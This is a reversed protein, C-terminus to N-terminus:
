GVGFFYLIPFFIMQEMVGPCDVFSITMIGTVVKINQIGTELSVTRFQKHGFTEKVSPNFPVAVLSGLWSLLYRLLSLIIENRVYSHKFNSTVDRIKYVFGLRFYCWVFTAYLM